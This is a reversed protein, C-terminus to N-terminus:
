ESQNLGFKARHRDRSSALQGSFRDRFGAYTIGSLDVPIELSELVERKQAQTFGNGYQATTGEHARSHGIIDPLILFAEVGARRALDAFTHRFSHFNKRDTDGKSDRVRIGQKFFYGAATTSHSPFRCFFHTANSGWGKKDRYTLGDSFLKERGEEVAERVFDLFGMRVLESHIPLIRRSARNKLSKPLPRDQEDDMIDITWIGDTTQAIDLANLQCLENLRGGTFLGLLPLWFQYPAVSKSRDLETGRYLYGTFIANLDANSFAKEVPKAGPRDDNLKPREPTDPHISTFGKRHAFEHLVSLRLMVKAGTKDSIKREGDKAIISDVPADPPPLKSGRSMRLEFIAQYIWEFDELTLQNFPKGRSLISLRCAHGQEDERTRQSKPAGRNLRADTDWQLQWLEYVSLAAAQPKPEALKSPAAGMPILEPGLALNEVLRPLVTRFYPLPLNLGKDFLMSALQEQAKPIMRHPRGTLTQAILRRRLDHDHEEWEDDTLASEFAPEGTHPTASNSWDPSREALELEALYLEYDEESPQYDDRDVVALVKDFVIEYRAVYQRARRLALRRSDTKLSRRIERQIGLAQRLPKPM